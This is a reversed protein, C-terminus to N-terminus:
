DQLEKKFYNKVFILDQKTDIVQNKIEKKNKNEFNKINIKKPNRYFFSTVHEKDSKSFKNIYKLLISTRIIEVSQGKPFTRPFINTILDYKNKSEEHIKIANDILSHRILPSDGNIRLFFKAKKTIALDLFRKAVNNLDGRHYTIGFKELHKVLKNDTEHKSTAVIIKKVKKSLKIKDFVHNILAKGFIKELVKNKFRKSSTRAQIIALM